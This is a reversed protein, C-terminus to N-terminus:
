GRPPVRKYMSHEFPTNRFEREEGALSDCYIMGRFVTTDRQDPILFTLPGPVSGGEIAIIPTRAGFEGAAVRSSGSWGSAQYRLVIEEGSLDKTESDSIINSFVLSDGGGCLGKVTENVRAATTNQAAAAQVQTTQNAERTESSCSLSLLAVCASVRVKWRM